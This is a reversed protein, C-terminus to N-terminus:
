DLKSNYNENSEEKREKKKLKLVLEKNYGEVILSEPANPIEYDRDIDIWLNVYTGVKIRKTSSYNSGKMLNFEVNAKENSYKITISSNFDPCESTDVKLVFKCFYDNGFTAVAPKKPQKEKFKVKFVKVLIWKFFKIIYRKGLLLDAILYVGIFYFVVILMSRQLATTQFNGYTSVKYKGNGKAVFEDHLAKLNQSGYNSNYEDEFAKVDKFFQGSFNLNSFNFEKFVNGFSDIMELKTLENGYDQALDIYLFNRAELTSVTDLTGDYDSDTDIITIISEKGNSNTLKLKAQNNKLENFKYVSRVNYIFGAYANHIIGEDVKKGNEDKYTLTAAEFLVIGCSVGDAVFDQQYYEDVYYYGGMLAIAKDRENPTNLSTIITDMSMEYMFYNPLYVALFIGLAFTSIYYIIKIFIRVKNNM